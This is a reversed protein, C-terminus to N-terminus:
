KKASVLTHVALAAVSGLLAIALAIWTFPVSRICLVLIGLLFSISGCFLAILGTRVAFANDFTGRTRQDVFNSILAYKGRFAILYGLVGLALGLMVLLIGAFIM